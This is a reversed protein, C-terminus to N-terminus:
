FEDGRYYDGKDYMRVLWQVTQGERNLTSSTSKKLKVVNGILFHGTGLHFFLPM